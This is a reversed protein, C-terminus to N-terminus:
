KGVSVCSGVATLSLQLKNMNGQQTYVLIMRSLLLTYEPAAPADNLLLSYLVPALVSGQPVGAMIKRPSSFEGEVSVKFQRITLFSATVKILSISFQMESLKYLLGSQRTTDLAKEINLFVAATSMNNNFDSLCAGNAEHM